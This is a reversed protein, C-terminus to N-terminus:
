AAGGTVRRGPFEATDMPSLFGKSAVRALWRVQAGSVSSAELVAADTVRANVNAGLVELPYLIARAEDRDSEAEGKAALARDREAHAADLEDRLDAMQRAWTNREKLLETLADEARTM